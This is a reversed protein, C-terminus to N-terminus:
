SGKKDNMKEKFTAYTKKGSRKEGTACSSEEDVGEKDDDESSDEESASEKVSAKDKESLKSDGNYVGPGKATPKSSVALKESGSKYERAPDDTVIVSHQDIFDQEGQSHPEMIEQDDKKDKINAHKIEKSGSKVIEGQVAEELFSDYDVSEKKQAAYYAGLARKKRQEKSDGAFRPDDSKMFDSIWKGADDSTKLVENILTDIESESFIDLGEKNLKSKATKMGAQRKAIAAASDSATKHDGQDMASSKQDKHAAVDSKSGKIYSKLTDISLEDIQEVEEKNLKTKAIKMGAQRKAIAAASDSATKHDGQDMASSKQDKHAAVDSKAGKIYNKLAGISIEDIQEVEENTTKNVPTLHGPKIMSTKGDSHKVLRTGEMDKAVAQVNVVKGHEPHGPKNVVHPGTLTEETVEREKQKIKKDMHVARGAYHQAAYKNDDMHADFAKDKLKEKASRMTQLSIEDIQEVEENRLKALGEKSSISDKRPGKVDAVTLPKEGQQKRLYAPVDSKQMAEDVQEETEESMKGHLAKDIRDLQSPSKLKNDEKDKKYGGYVGPKARHITGTDTKIVRDDTARPNSAEDVVEVEEKQARLKALDEGEIKGDKDVDIKHQKGKLEEAKMKKYTESVSDSKFIGWTM